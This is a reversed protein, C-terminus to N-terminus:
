GSCLRSCLMDQLIDQAMGLSMCSVDETYRWSEVQNSSKALYATAVM